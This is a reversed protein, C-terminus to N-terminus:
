SDRRKPTSETETEVLTVVAGVHTALLLALTNQNTRLHRVEEELNAFRLAEAENM